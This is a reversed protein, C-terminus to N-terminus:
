VDSQLLMNIGERLTVQPTWGPLKVGGSWPHMVERPRYTRGGWQVNLKVGAENEYIEVLNRLEVPDGSCISFTESNKVQGSRLRKLAIVFANCVDDIYIPDLCQHGPSMDIKDGTSVLRDLLAFLKGRRDNPGYTDFLELNIVKLGSTEIYFRLVSVFAQKTAAYLNVPNYEDDGYHQWSTGVNIFLRINNVAMSELLQTSLLVNSSILDDIDTSKHEAIFLSALHIVVDPKAKKVNDIMEQTSGHHTHVVVRELCSELQSFNTEPRSLIHVQYQDKLLRQVLHGGVFGTAGTVLIRM